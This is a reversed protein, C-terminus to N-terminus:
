KAIPSVADAEVGRHGGGQQHEWRYTCLTNASIEARRCIENHSLGLSKLWPAKMKRPVRPHLYHYREYKLAQTEEETLEIRIVKITEYVEYSLRFPTQSYIFIFRRLDTDKFLLISYTIYM